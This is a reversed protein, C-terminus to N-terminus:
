NVGELIVKAIKKLDIEFLINDVVYASIWQGFYITLPHNHETDRAKNQKAKEILRPLEKKFDKHQIVLTFVTNTDLDAGPITRLDLTNNNNTM